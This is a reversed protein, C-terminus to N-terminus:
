APAATAVNLRQLRWLRRFNYRIDIILSLAGSVEYVIYVKSLGGTPSVGLEKNNLSLPIEIKVFSHRM